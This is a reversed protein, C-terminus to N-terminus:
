VNLLQFICVERVMNKILRNAAQIDEPNKSQLLKKLLKSKEEDQVNIVKKKQQIKAPEIEHKSGQEQNDNLLAPFDNKIVGQKQLMLYAEKIKIEKPYDFQWTHM